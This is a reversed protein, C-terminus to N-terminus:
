DSNKDPKRRGKKLTSKRAKADLRRRVAGKSPKTPKRKKRVKFAARLIERLRELAEIRNRAQTRHNQAKIVIVGSETLRRDHWRLIRAKHMDSLSSKKVDFRLHIASSVKNVNQGGPGSARIASFELDSLPFSVHENIVFDQKSM